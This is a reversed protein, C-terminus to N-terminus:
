TVPRLGDSVPIKRFLRSAVYKNAIVFLYAIRLSIQIYIGRHFINIGMAIEFARRVKFIKFEKQVLYESIHKKKM